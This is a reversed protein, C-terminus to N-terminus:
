PQNPRREFGALRPQLRLRQVSGDAGISLDANFSVGEPVAGPPFMAEAPIAIQIAPETPTWITAQTQVLAVAPRRRIRKIPKTANTEASRSESVVATPVTAAPPHLQPPGMTARPFMLLLVVAAAAAAGSMVPIWRPVRRRAQRSMAAECYADFARSVRQYDEVESQCEACGQVHREVAAAENEALEHDLWAVLREAHEGM